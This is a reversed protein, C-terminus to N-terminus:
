KAKAAEAPAAEPAVPQAEPAAPTPSTDAPAAVAPLPSHGPMHACEMVRTLRANHYTGAKEFNWPPYPYFKAEVCYGKKAISWQRDETSAHYLEGDNAKIMVAFSFLQSNAITGGILVGPETVREVELIEGVVNKAFIYSYNNIVIMIAGIVVLVIILLRAAQAVKQM